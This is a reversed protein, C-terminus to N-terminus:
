IEKTFHLMGLLNSAKRKGRETEEEGQFVVILM